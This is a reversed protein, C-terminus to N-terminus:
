AQHPRTVDPGQAGRGVGAGGGIRGPEVWQGVGMGALRAWDFKEGPDRKRSPAVDSHALVHEPRIGHRAIIDLSLAEVARMQPEPFDRYDLGHGPNHIEIGISATNIDTEGAWFSEGAHWARMAESVMQLICGDDDMHYHCSVGAEAACLWDIALEATPTGTYHLLLIYPRMGDQRPEINVAQRCAAALITDPTM